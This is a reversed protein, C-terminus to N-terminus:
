RTWQRRGHVETALLEVMDEIEAIPLTAAERADIKKL